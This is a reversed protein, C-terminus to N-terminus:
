NAFVVLFHKQVNTSVSFNNEKVLININKKKCKVIKLRGDSLYYIKKPVTETFHMRKFLDMKEVAVIISPNHNSYYSM